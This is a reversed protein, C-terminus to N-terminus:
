VKNSINGINHNQETGHFIILSLNQCLLQIKTIRLMLFGWCNRIRSTGILKISIQEQNEPNKEYNEGRSNM